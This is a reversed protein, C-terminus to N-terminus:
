KILPRIERDLDETIGKIKNIKTNWEKQLEILEEETKPPKNIYFNKQLIFKILQDKFYDFTLHEYFPTCFNGIRSAYDKNKYRFTIWTIPTTSYSYERSTAFRIGFDSLGHSNLIDNVVKVFYEPDEISEKEKDGYYIDKDGVFSEKFSKLTNNSEKLLTNNDKWSKNAM